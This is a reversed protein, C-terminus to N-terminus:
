TTAMAKQPELVREWGFTEDQAFEFVVRRIEDRVLDVARSCPLRSSCLMYLTRGLKQDRIRTIRLKGQAVDERVCAIPLVTQGLGRSVFEKVLEISDIHRSIKLECGASRAACEVLQRIYHRESPLILTQRFIECFDAECPSQREKACCVLALEDHILSESVFEVHHKRHFNLALDVTPCEAEMQKSGSKFIGLQVDPLSRQCCEAITAAVIPPLSRAICLEVHGSPSGAYHILDQRVHEFQRLLPGAYQALREGAETPAVGGPHRRLLKVGLEQELKSIQAGLAPQAVHLLVSAKNLSKTDLVGLFYRLQRIDM